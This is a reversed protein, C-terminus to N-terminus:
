AKVKRLDNSTFLNGYKDTLDASNSGLWKVRYFTEGNQQIGVIEVTADKFDTDTAWDITVKCKDTIKFKTAM